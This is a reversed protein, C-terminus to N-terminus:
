LYREKVDHGYKYYSNKFGQTTIGLEQNNLPQYGKITNKVNEQKM